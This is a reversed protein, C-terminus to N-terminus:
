QAAVRGLRQVPRSARARGPSASAVPGHRGSQIRQVLKGMYAWGFYVDLLWRDAFRYEYGGCVGFMLGYGKSYRDQLGLKGGAFTPKSMKFAMMGVNAGVYWGTNHQKFYRRYENMFIGFLMPKHAGNHEISKWPSCVFESQFTSHPSLRFEVAPNIVGVLAYLGNLKVYTQAESRQASLLIGAAALLM